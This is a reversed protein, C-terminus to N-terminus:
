YSHTKVKVSFPIPDATDEPVSFSISEVEIMRSSTELAKLFDKFASYTGSLGFSVKIEKIAQKAKADAAESGIDELILGTQSAMTQLLNFLSPLSTRLPLASSIKSLSDPYETFKESVEKVQSFYEKKYQLETEKERINSQLVSFAQYKPLLLAFGLALTLVVVIAILILKNM